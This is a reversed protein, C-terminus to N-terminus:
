AGGEQDQEDMQNSCHNLTIIMVSTFLQLVYFGGFVIISFYPAWWGTDLRTRGRGGGVREVRRHHHYKACDGGVESLRRLIPIRGLPQSEVQLMDRGDGGYGSGRGCPDVSRGRVLSVDAKAPCTAVFASRANVMAPPPPPAPSSVCRGTLKGGFLLTGTVSTVLMFWCLFIFAGRVATARAFTGHAYAASRRPLEEDSAAPPLMSVCAARSVPQGDDVRVSEGVHGVGARLRVPEM